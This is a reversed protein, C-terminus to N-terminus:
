KGSKVKSQMTQEELLRQLLPSQNLGRAVFGQWQSPLSGFVRIAEERSSFEGYVCGGTGTLRARTRSGLWDLLESVEPHIRRVVPECDNRGRGDLFDRITIAPTNRTLDPANFIEATAVGFGPSVVLYWKLPPEVPTLQEGVGEAWAAHGQVFVPVDAGLDLGIEALKTVPLECGWLTNLAVLTTAADSSGGGLGGGISLHKHVQIDAGMGVGAAQQLRKAARLVLDDETDIAGYNRILTFEDDERVKFDLQDARDLFQFVTQLLHYGDSRRGVVHLFLNLKAPAPWSRSYNSTEMTPSLTENLDNNVSGM